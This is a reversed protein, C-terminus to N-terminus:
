KILIAYLFCLLLNRAFNVYIRKFKRTFIVLKVSKDILNQFNPISSDFSVEAPQLIVFKGEKEANFLDIVLDINSIDISQANNM